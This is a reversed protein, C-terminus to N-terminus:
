KKDKGLGKFWGGVKGATRKAASEVSEGAEGIADGANTLKRKSMLRTYRSSLTQYRSVENDTFRKKYINHYESKIRDREMRWVAVTDPRIYLGSDIASMRTLLNEFRQLLSGNDAGAPKQAAATLTAAFLTVAILLKKM